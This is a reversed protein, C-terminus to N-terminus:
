ITICIPPFSFGVASLVTNCFNVIITLPGNLFEQYLMQIGERLVLAPNNFGLILPNPISPITLGPFSLGLILTEIRLGSEIINSLNPLSPLSPLLSKAYSIIAAELETITPLVPLTPLLNSLGLKNLVSTILNPIINIVDNLYGKIIGQVITVLEFDPCHINIYIPLDIFPFSGINSQINQLNAEVANYIATPNMSLLDLLNLGIIPITPLISRLSLGLFSTIPSLISNLLSQISFSQFEQIIKLIMLRPNTIKSYIPNLLTPLTPINFSPLLAYLTSISPIDYTFSSYISEFSPVPTNTCITISM